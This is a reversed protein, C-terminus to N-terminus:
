IDEKEAGGSPKDATVGVGGPKAGSGKLPEPYRRLAEAGAWTAFETSLRPYDARAWMRKLGAVYAERLMEAESKM